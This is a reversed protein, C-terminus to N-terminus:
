KNFSSVVEEKFRRIGEAEEHARARTLFSDNYTMKQLGKYIDCLIRTNMLNFQM